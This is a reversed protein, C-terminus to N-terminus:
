LLGCRRPLVCASGCRVAMKQAVRVDVRPDATAAAPTKEPCRVTTKVTCVMVRFAALRFGMTSECGCDQSAFGSLRKLAPAVLLMTCVMCSVPNGPLSFVQRPGARVRMDSDRSDSHTTAASLHRPLRPPPPPLTVFRLYGLAYCKHRDFSQVSLLTPLPPNRVLCDRQSGPRPVTAFTTPKGPKM